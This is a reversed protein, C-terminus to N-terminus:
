TAKYWGQPAFSASSIAEGKESIKCSSQLQSGERLDIRPSAPVSREQASLSAWSGLLFAALLFRGYPFNRILNMANRWVRWLNFLLFISARSFIAVVNM